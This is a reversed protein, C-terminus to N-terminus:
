YFWGIYSALNRLLVWANTVFCNTVTTKPSCTAKEGLHNRIEIGAPPITAYSNKNIVPKKPGNNNEERKESIQQNKGQCSESGTLISIYSAVNRLLAPAM